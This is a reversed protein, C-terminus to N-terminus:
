RRSGNRLRPRHIAKGTFDHGHLWGQFRGDIATDQTTRAVQDLVSGISCVTPRQFEWDDWWGWLTSAVCPAFKAVGEMWPSPAAQEHSTAALEERRRPAEDTTVEMAPRNLHLQERRLLLGPLLEHGLVTM